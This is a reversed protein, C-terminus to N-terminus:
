RFRPPWHGLVSYTGFPSRGAHRNGLGLRARGLRLVVLPAPAPVDPIVLVPAPDRGGVAVPPDLSVDEVVLVLRRLVVEAPRPRLRRFPGRRRGCAGRGGRRRRAAFRARGAGVLSLEPNGLRVPQ